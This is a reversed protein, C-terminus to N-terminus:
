MVPYDELTMLLAPVETEDDTFDFANIILNSMIALAIPTLSQDLACACFYFSIKKIRSLSTTKGKESVMLLYMIWNRMTQIARKTMLGKMQVM